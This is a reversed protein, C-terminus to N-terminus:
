VHARGIQISAPDGFRYAVAIHHWGTSAHFGARSTWRHWHGGVGDPRSAFLFGVKALEGEGVVRLAWNQNDRDFRDDGTRGKGIVYMMQGGRIRDVHVWAELTISDGDGFAFRQGSGEDPIALFAGRGDLRLARNDPSFDPFEPPRPGPEGFTANGHAVEGGSGPVEFDWRGAPTEDAM